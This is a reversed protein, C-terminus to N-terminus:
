DRDHVPIAKSKEGPDTLRRHQISDSCTKCAALHEKGLSYNKRRHNYSVDSYLWEGLGFGTFHGDKDFFEKKKEPAAPRRFRSEFSM